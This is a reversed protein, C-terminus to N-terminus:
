NKPPLVEVFTFGLVELWKKVHPTLTTHGMLHKIADAQKTASLIMYETGYINKRYYEIVTNM